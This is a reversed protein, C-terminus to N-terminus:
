ITKQNEIHIKLLEQYYQKGEDTQFFKEADYNLNHRDVLEKRKQKALHREVQRRIKRPLDTKM